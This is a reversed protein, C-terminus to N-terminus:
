LYFNYKPLFLFVPFLKLPCFIPSTPVNDEILTLIYPMYSDEIMYTILFSIVSKMLRVIEIQPIHLFAPLYLRHKLIKLGLIIM